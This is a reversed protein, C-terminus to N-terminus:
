KRKTANQIVDKFDIFSGRIIKFFSVYKLTPIGIMYFMTCVGHRVYVGLICDSTGFDIMFRSLRFGKLSFIQFLFGSQQRLNQLTYKCCTPKM